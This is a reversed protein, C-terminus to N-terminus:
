YGYQAYDIQLAEMDSKMPGHFGFPTEIFFAGVLDKEGVLARGDQRALKEARQAVKQEAIGRLFVPIKGILQQFKERVAPEWDCSAGTDAKEDREFPNEM